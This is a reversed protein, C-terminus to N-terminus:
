DELINDPLKNISRIKVNRYFIESGESEIQIKGKTLPIEKDGELQRSNYLVM